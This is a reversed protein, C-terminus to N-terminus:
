ITIEEITLMTSDNALAVFLELCISKEYIEKIILENKSITNIFINDLHSIHPIIIAFTKDLKIIIFQWKYITKQPL